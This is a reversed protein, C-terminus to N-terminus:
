LVNTPTSYGGWLVVELYRSAEQDLDSWDIKQFFFTMTPVALVQFAEITIGM